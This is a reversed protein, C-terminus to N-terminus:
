PMLKQKPRGRRAPERQTGTDIRLNKGARNISRILTLVTGKKIKLEAAVQSYSLQMRYYLHIVRMWRGAQQAQRYSGRLRPFVRLLVKQVESNNLTWPVIVRERTRVKKIQHASMFNDDGDLRTRLKAMDKRRDAM